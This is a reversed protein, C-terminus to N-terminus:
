PVHVSDIIIRFGGDVEFVRGHLALDSAGSEVTWLDVIVDWHDGMWQAQSTSWTEEPLDTLTEGYLAVYKQIRGELEPTIPVISPVTAAAASDGRAIANVFMTLPHRWETALPHAADEDKVAPQTASTTGALAFVRRERHVPRDCCSDASDTKANDSRPLTEARRSGSRQKPAM